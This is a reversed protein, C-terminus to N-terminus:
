RLGPQYPTSSTSCKPTVRTYYDVVDLISAPLDKKYSMYGMEGNAIVDAYGSDREKYMRCCLVTVAHVIDDPITSYGGSYSVTALGKRNRYWNPAYAKLVYDNEIWAQSLTFTDVSDMPTAQFTASVVNQIQVIPKRLFMKIYGTLPNFFGDITETIQEFGFGNRARCITDFARSARSIYENATTTNVVPAGLAHANITATIPLTQGSPPGTAQVAERNTPSLSDLVLTAGLLWDAPLPQNISISVAGASIGASLTEPAQFALAAEVKGVDTYLITSV